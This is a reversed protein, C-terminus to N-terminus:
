ATQRLRKKGPSVPLFSEVRFGKQRLTRNFGFRIDHIFRPDENEPKSRSLIVSKALVDFLVYGTKRCRRDLQRHHEHRVGDDATQLIIALDHVSQRFANGNEYRIIHTDSGAPNKGTFFASLHDIVGLSRVKKVGSKKMDGLARTLAGTKRPNGNLLSTVALLDLYTAPFSEGGPRPQHLFATIKELVNRRIMGHVAFALLAEYCLIPDVPFQDLGSEPLLRLDHLNERITGTDMRLVSATSLLMLIDSKQEGPLALQLLSRLCAEYEPSLYELQLFRDTFAPHETLWAAFAGPLNEDGSRFACAHIFIFIESFDEDSIEAAALENLLSFDARGLAYFLMWKVLQTRDKDNQAHRIAQEFINREEPRHQYLHGALFCAAMEPCVFRLTQSFSFADCETQESFLGLGKLEEYLHPYAKLEAIEHCDVKNRGKQLMKGTVADILLRKEGQMKGGFIRSPIHARIVQFVTLPSAPALSFGPHFLSRYTTFLAPDALISLFNEDFHQRHDTRPNIKEALSFLEDSSFPFINAPADEDAPMYGTDWCARMGSMAEMQAACHQWTAPRMTCIMKLWGEGSHVSLIDLLQNWIPTFEGPRFAAPDFGDIILYLKRGAAVLQDWSDNQDLGLLLMLWDKFAGDTSANALTHSSFFLYIDNQRNENIQAQLWHSLAISKGSGAGGSLVFANHEGASFASLQENVCNRAITQAYPVASRNRIAQLTHATIRAAKAPLNEQLHETDRAPTAKEAFCYDNWGKKGCFEALVDLTFASPKFRSTAHGYIRKLTTDSINKRTRAHIQVSLSRCDAASLFSYGAVALVEAKLREFVHHIFVNM